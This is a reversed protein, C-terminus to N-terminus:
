HARINADAIVKAYKAIDRKFKDTLAHPTSSVAELAESVMFKKVEPTAQAKALEANM